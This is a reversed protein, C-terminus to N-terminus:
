NTDLMFVDKDSERLEKYYKMEELFLERLRNESLENEKEFEFNVPAESVEEKKTNRMATFYSHCLCEELTIRFYPNFVLIRDLLDIAEKTCGPYM